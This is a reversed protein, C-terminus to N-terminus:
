KKTFLSYDVKSQQFGFSVLAASLKSFWQRTDQKLDYLSKKLKCVQTSQTKVNQVPEGKGVYGLPVHMYVKELLDIAKKNLPLSTLEWTGNEELDKLDSTMADCWGLDSISEKFSKPDSHTELANRTQDSSSASTSASESQVLTTPPIHIALVEKIPQDNIPTPVVPNDYVLKSSPMTIPVSHLFKSASSDVFAFIHEHFQVDRSLFCSHTILNYLKYGKQHAPYGLIVCPVGKPAFKDLVRSPNTAVVFCGFVRLSSYNPEKKVLMEYPTKYKLIPSPFRNILYTTTTVCDGKYPGWTDMHIFHFAASSQSDSLSYPLKTLKAMPCTLCTTTNSANVVSVGTSRIHKMWCSLKMMNSLKADVSDMAVNLLHYLGAVKKGLGLVKRTTLDDKLVIGINLKVQRIQTIDSSHGNPLTIKPLIKLIKASLMSKFHPTTAGTYKGKTDEKSFLTTAEISPVGTHFVYKQSEEQQIVECANEISPLSNILLLQRNQASYCEDLGNLLQFLRHEEKQKEVATLFASMKSTITILRPLVTMSDLEESVCKTLIKLGDLILKVFLM